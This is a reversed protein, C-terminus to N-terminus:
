FQTELTEEQFPFPEWNRAKFWDVIIDRGKAVKVIALNPSHNNVAL